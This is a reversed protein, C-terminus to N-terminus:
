PNTSFYSEIFVIYRYFYNSIIQKGSLHKDAAYESLLIPKNKWTNLHRFQIM